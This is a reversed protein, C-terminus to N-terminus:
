SPLLTPSNLFVVCVDGTFGTSDMVVKLSRFTNGIKHPMYMLCHTLPKHAHRRFSLSGALRSSRLDCTGACCYVSWILEALVWSCSYYVINLILLDFAFLTIQCITNSQSKNKYNFKVCFIFSYISKVDLPYFLIM